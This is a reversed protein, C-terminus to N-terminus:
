KQLKIYQNQLKYILNFYLEIEYGKINTDKLLKLLTELEILSLDNDILQNSNNNNIIQQNGNIFAM